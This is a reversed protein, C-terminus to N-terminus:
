CTLVPRSVLTAAGRVDVRTLTTKMAALPSGGRDGTKPPQHLTLILTLFPGLTIPQPAIVHAQAKSTGWCVTGSPTLVNLTNALRGPIDLNAVKPSKSTDAGGSVALECNAAFLILRMFPGPTLTTAYSPHNEM